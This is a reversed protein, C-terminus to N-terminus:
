AIRESKVFTSCGSPVIHSFVLDTPLRTFFHSGIFVCHVSGHLTYISLCQGSGPASCNCHSPCNPVV